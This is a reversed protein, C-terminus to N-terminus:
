RSYNLHFGGRSRSITAQCGSRVNKELVIQESLDNELVELLITKPSFSQAAEMLPQKAENPLSSQQLEQSFETIGQETKDEEVFAVKMEFASGDGGMLGKLAFGLIVILVFPMLLITILETRDRWLIKLDKKWFTLM